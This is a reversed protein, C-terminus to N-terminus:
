RTPLEARAQAASRYREASPPPPRLLVAALTGMLSRGGATPGGAPHTLQERTRELQRGTAPDLEIRAEVTFRAPLGAVPGLDFPSPTALLRRVTAWDTAQRSWALAGQERITVTYTETWVDFRVDFDREAGAAAASDSADLAALSLRVTSTLGNGLKRELETDIAATLDVAALLRGSRSWCDVRLPGAERSAPAAAQSPAALLAVAALIGRRGARGALFRAAHATFVFRM